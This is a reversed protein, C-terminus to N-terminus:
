SGLKGFVVGSLESLKEDGEKMTRVKEFTLVLFKETERLYIGTRHQQVYEMIKGFVASKYFSSEQNAVFYCRMARGKLIIQEVGLKTAMWKLRMAEFLEYVPEPVPGFKFYTLLNPNFNCPKFRHLHM